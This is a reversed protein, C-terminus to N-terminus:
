AERLLLRLLSKELSSYLFQLALALNGPMVPMGSHRLRSTFSCRAGLFIYSPLSQLTGDQSGEQDSPFM